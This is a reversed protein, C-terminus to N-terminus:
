VTWKQRSLRTPSGSSSCPRTRSSGSSPRGRPSPRSLYCFRGYAINGTDGTCNCKLTVRFLSENTNYKNAVSSYKISLYMM